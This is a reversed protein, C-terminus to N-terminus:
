LIICIKLLFQSYKYKKSGLIGMNPPQSIMQNIYVEHM